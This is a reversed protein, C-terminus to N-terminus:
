IWSYSQMSRIRLEYQTVVSEQTEIDVGVGESGDEYAQLLTNFVFAFAKLDLIFHLAMAVMSRSRVSLGRPWAM